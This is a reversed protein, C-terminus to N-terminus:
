QTMLKPISKHERVHKISTSVRSPSSSMLMNLIKRTKRCINVSQLHTFGETALLLASHNRRSLEDRRSVEVDLDRAPMVKGPDHGM